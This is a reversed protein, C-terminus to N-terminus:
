GPTMGSIRPGRSAIGASLRQVESQWRTISAEVQDLPPCEVWRDGRRYMTGGELIALHAALAADLAAQAHALTIGPM